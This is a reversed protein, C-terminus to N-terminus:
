VKPGFLVTTVALMPKEIPPPRLAPALLFSPGLPPTSRLAETLTLKEAESTDKTADGADVAM